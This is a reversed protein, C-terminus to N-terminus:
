RTSASESVPPRSTLRSVGASSAGNWIWASLLSPSTSTSPRSHARGGAEADLAPQLARRLGDLVDEHAHRDAQEPQEADHREDDPRREAHEADAHRDQEAGGGEAGGDRPQVTAGGVAHQVRVQRRKGRAHGRAAAWPPPREARQGVALQPPDRAHERDLGQEREARQEGRQRGDDQEGLHEEEADAADGADAVDVVDPGPRQVGRQADHQERYRDRGRDEGDGDEVPEVRDQARERSRQQRRARRRAPGHALHQGLAEAVARQRDGVPQGVALREDVLRAAPHLQGLGVRTARPGGNLAVALRHGRDDVVRRHVRPGLEHVGGGRRGPKGDVVLAELRVEARADLLQPDRPQADDLRAVGRAPAQLAVQVVAGLLLEDPERQVQVQELRAEVIGGGDRHDLLDRLLELERQALQALERAADM